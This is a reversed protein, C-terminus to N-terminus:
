AMLGLGVLRPVVLGPHRWGGQPPMPPLDHVSLPRWPSRPTVPTSVGSPTPKVAAAQVPPSPAPRAAHLPAAFSQRWLWAWDEADVDGARALWWALEFQALEAGPGTAWRRVDKRAQALLTLWAQPMVRAAPKLWGWWRAYTGLKDSDGCRGPFLQGEAAVPAVIMGITQLMRQTTGLPDQAWHQPLQYAHFPLSVNTYGEAQSVHVAYITMGVHAAYAAHRAEHLATEWTDPPIHM